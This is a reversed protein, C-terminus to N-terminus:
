NDQTPHHAYLDKNPSILAKRLNLLAHYDTKRFIRKFRENVQISEMYLPELQALVREWPRQEAIQRAYTAMQRRRDPHDRLTIVAERFEVPDDNVVLGTEGNLVLDKASGKNTIVTPLGSAMAEQVVQGFTEYPGTFLFVDSSAMAAPLEAGMLYGTFHTGTGAFLEELADRQAGDGIITLAVGETRAVELLLDIRKETAVRGVYVCLLSNPDRGALLKERWELTAHNPNFRIGDVGRGWERLRKYGESRLEDATTQSPVLTLHCGNHLYRLWNNIMNSAIEGGFGKVYEKAYGPLDTQYNAVVPVNMFRGSAMGSASMLAPSFLHILDPQFDHLVRSIRPNPLAMRTEPVGPVGLSLLPYVPTGELSEPAIDPAFVIVERGTQKLYKMVLYATKTVGDVKPLFAETLIAVRKVPALPTSPDPPRLSVESGFVSEIDDPNFTEFLGLLRNTTMHRGEMFNFRSSKDYCLRSPLSAYLFIDKKFISDDM